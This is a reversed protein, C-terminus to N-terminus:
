RPPSRSRSRLATTSGAGSVSNRAATRQLLFARVPARAEAAAHPHPPRRAARAHRRVPPGHLVQCSPRRPACGQEIFWRVARRLIGSVTAANEAAHIECYALRAHDDIVGIVKPRAPTAPATATAATATPGTGPSRSSRCSWRTSTCCRAPRPGSRRRTSQAREGRGQRSLGHRKLVKWCTSRHRGTLPDAGTPRRARRCSRRSRSPASRGRVRGRCRGARRAGRV